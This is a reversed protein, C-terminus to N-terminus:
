EGPRRVFRKRKSKRIFNKKEPTPKLVKNVQKKRVPVDKGRLHFLIAVFAYRFSDRYDNPVSDEAKVWLQVSKGKTNVTDELVGNLMQELFDQHEELEGACMSLYGLDGTELSNIRRDLWDETYAPDVWILKKGIQKSGKQSITRERYFTNLPTTSGRCPKTKHGAKVLEAAVEHVETPRYGSDILTLVSRITGGDEYSWDRKIVETLDQIEDIEGYDVVHPSMGPRWAVAVWPHTHGQKDVGITLFSADNPVIGRPIDSLIIKDGFQEWTQKRTTFEWTEALWQNRFNKLNEISDISTLFEYAIDGWSVALAYLSSLQYSAHEVRTPSGGKIWKARSWGNWVKEDGDHKEKAYLRRAHENMADKASLQANEPVWVGLRMMPGRHHDHIKRECHQCEYYATKKAVKADSKGGKNKKWKIQDMELVQYEKCHPCPVHYKCNTGQLRLREIRSRGKVAPTSEYIFKRSSQFDKGRDDFLKLPDAETSTSYREWKDIENAHGVKVTKDALTSPSRSWGVPMTCSQFKMLDKRTNKLIKKCLTKSEGAMQRTREAVEIALKEKSSAFMMPAPDVDATYLTCCQGFFTKGLRSGWQLSIARVERDDFADMPGGPAGIHPYAENDYARKNENVANEIAWNLLRVERTPEFAEYCVNLDELTRFRIPEELEHKFEELLNVEALAVM